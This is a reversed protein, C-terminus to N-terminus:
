SVAVVLSPWCNNGRTSSSFFNNSSLKENGVIAGVGGTGAAAATVVNNNMIMAIDSGDNICALTTRIINGAIIIAKQHTADGDTVTDIDIGMEAGEIINDLIMLGPSDGDLVEIVADSFAGQLQCNSVVTHPANEIVLASASTATGNSDFFCNHFELGCCWEDLTWINGSAALFQFNFFRTGYSCTTSGTPVHNGFLCTQYRDHSGVGIVDTKQALLVLNEVFSDGKCYIVNRAAWGKSNLAIDAQSAALAVTLTKFATDWSLGDAGDNGANGDCYFITKAGVGAGLAAEGDALDALRSIGKRMIFPQGNGAKAANYM